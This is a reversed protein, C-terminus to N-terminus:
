FYFIFYFLFIFYLPHMLACPLSPQSAELFPSPPRDTDTSNHLQARLKEVTIHHPSYVSTPKVAVESYIRTAIGTKSCCLDRIQPPSSECPSTDHSSSMHLVCVSRIDVYVVEDGGFNTVGTVCTTVWDSRHIAPRQHSHRCGVRSRPPQHSRPPPLSSHRRHQRLYWGQM